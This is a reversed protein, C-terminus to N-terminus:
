RYYGDEGGPRVNIAPGTKKVLADFRHHERTRITSWVMIDVMRHLLVIRFLDKRM